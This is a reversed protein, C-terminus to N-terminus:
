NKIKQLVSLVKLVLIKIVQGRQWYRRALRYITQHTTKHQEIITKVLSFRISPAYFNENSILLDIINMGTDRKQQQVSDEKVNILVIDAFPDEIIEAEGAEIATLLEKKEILFPNANPPTLDIWIIHSPTIKLLRYDEGHFKYVDNIRFM